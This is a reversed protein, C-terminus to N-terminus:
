FPKKPLFLLFYLQSFKSWKRLSASHPLGWLQPINPLMGRGVPYNNCRRATKLCQWTDRPSLAFTDGNSFLQALRFQRCTDFAPLCYNLWRVHAGSFLARGLIYVNERLLIFPFDHMWTGGGPSMQCLTTWCDGSLWVFYGSTVRLSRWWFYIHAWGIM